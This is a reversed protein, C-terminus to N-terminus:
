DFHSIRVLYIVSNACHSLILSLIRGRRRNLRLLVASFPQQRALKHLSGATTPSSPRAGRRQHQYVHPKHGAPAQFRELDARRSPRAAGTAARCSAEAAGSCARSRSTRAGQAESLNVTERGAQPLARKRMGARGRARSRSPPGQGGRRTKTARSRRRTKQCKM